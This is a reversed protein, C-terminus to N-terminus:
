HGFGEVVLIEGHEVERRLKIEFRYSVNKLIEYQREALQLPVTITDIRGRDPAGHQEGDFALAVVDAGDALGDGRVIQAALQAGIELAVVHLGADAMVADKGAFAPLVLNIRNQLVHNQRAILASKCGALAAQQM